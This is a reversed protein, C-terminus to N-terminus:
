RPKINFPNAPGTTIDAGDTIEATHNGGSCLVNAVPTVAM